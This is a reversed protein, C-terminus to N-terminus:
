GSKMDGKLRFRGYFKSVTHSFSKCFGKQMKYLGSFEFQNKLLFTTSALALGTKM